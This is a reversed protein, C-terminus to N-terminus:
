FVCARLGVELDDAIEKVVEFRVDDTQATEFQSVLALYDKTVTQM